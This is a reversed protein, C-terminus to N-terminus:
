HGIKAGYLGVILGGESIFITYLGMKDVGNKEGWGGRGEGGRFFNKRISELEELVGMPVRFLSFYYLSLCGLVSKVLTLRERFSMTRAKRESLRKKFKKIVLNWAEKKWVREGIPLGLYMFPTEGVSCKVGRAM